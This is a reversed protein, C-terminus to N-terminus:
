MKNLDFGMDLTDFRSENTAWQDLGLISDHKALPHTQHSSCGRGESASSHQCSIFGPDAVNPLCGRHAFIKSGSSPM